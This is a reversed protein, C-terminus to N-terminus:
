PSEAERTPASRAIEAAAADVEPQDDSAEITVDAALALPEGEYEDLGWEQAAAEAFARAADTGGRQVAIILVSAAVGRPAFELGLGELVEGDATVYWSAGLAQKGDWPVLAYSSRRRPPVLRGREDAPAEAM